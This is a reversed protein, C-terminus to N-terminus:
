LSNMFNDVYSKIRNEPFLQENYLKKCNNKPVKLLINSKLVDIFEEANSIVAGFNYQQNLENYIGTNTVVTPIDLMMYTSFKGSSLGIDILNKGNWFSDQQSKYFTIGFDFSKVFSCYENYSIFRNDHVILPYGDNQLKILEVHLPNQIDLKDRYHILIYYPKPIGLKLAEILLEIGNHISVDGSHILVKADQSLGLNTKLSKNVNITINNSNPAVPIYFFKTKKPFFNENILNSARQKDQVLITNVLRSYRIEKDKLLLMPITTLENKFLIEFSIYNIQLKSNIKNLRGAVLLGASDIAFLQKVNYKKIVKLVQIYPLIFKLVKTPRRPLVATQQPLSFLQINKNNSLKNFNFPETFLLIHINRKEFEEFLSVMTPNSFIDHSISDIIAIYKKTTTSM